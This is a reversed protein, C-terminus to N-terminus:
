GEEQTINIKEVVHKLGESFLKEVHEDILKYFVKRGEKRTRVLDLDKLARLQHSVASHSMDLISTLEAVCLESRSLALVIRARTPDGFVSFTRCLKEIVEEAEMGRVIDNILDKRPM